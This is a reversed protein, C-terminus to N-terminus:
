NGWRVFPIAQLAFRTLLAVAIIAMAQSCGTAGLVWAYQDAITPLTSLGGNGLSTLAADPIKLFEDFMSVFFDTFALWFDQLWCWILSLLATM